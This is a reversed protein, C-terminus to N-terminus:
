AEDEGPERGAPADVVAPEAEAERLAELAQAAAEAHNQCAQRVECRVWQRDATYVKSVFAVAAQVKTPAPGDAKDMNVAKLALVGHLRRADLPEPPNPLAGWNETVLANTAAVAENAMLVYPRTDPQRPDHGPVPEDASAVATRTAEKSATIQAM